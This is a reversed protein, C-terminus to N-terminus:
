TTFEWSPCQIVLAVTYGKKQSSIDLDFPAISVGRNRIFNGLIRVFQLMIIEFNLQVTQVNM